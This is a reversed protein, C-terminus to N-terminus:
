LAIGGIHCTGDASITWFYGSETSESSVVVYPPSPSVNPWSKCGRVIARYRGPPLDLRYQGSSDTNTTFFVPLPGVARYEIAVGSAWHSRRVCNDVVPGSNCADFFISGTVTIRPGFVGSLALLSLLVTAVAGLTLVVSLVPLRRLASM